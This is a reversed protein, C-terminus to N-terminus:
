KQLYMIEASEPPRESAPTAHEFGAPPLVAQRKHINHITLYLDM